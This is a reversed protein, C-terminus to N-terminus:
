TILTSFLMFNNKQVFYVLFDPCDNMVKFM